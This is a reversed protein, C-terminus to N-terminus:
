KGKGCRKKLITQRPVHTTSQGYPMHFPPEGSIASVFSELYLVPLGMQSATRKRHSADNATSGGSAARCNPSNSFFKQPPTRQNASFFIPQISSLRAAASRRRSSHRLRQAVGGPGSGILCVGGGSPTPYFPLQRGNGM